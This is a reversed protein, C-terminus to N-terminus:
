KKIIEVVIFIEDNCLNIEKKVMYAKIIESLENGARVPFDYEEDWSKIITKM